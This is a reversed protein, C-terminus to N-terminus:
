NVTLSASAPALNAGANGTSVAGAAFTSTYTGISSSAVPVTVTCSGGAPIVGDKFSVTATGNVAVVTGGCTTAPASTATMNVLGAPHIDDPTFRVGTIETTNTNTFTYTLLSTANQSVSTPSFAKAVAPHVLANLTGSVAAITATSATTVNGTSNDHAGLTATTVNVTVTCSGKAPVTAGALAVSAGGNSATVTGSACTTSAGAASTNVLGAPYSDTFVAGTMATTTPNALTITLVSADNTGISCPTFVKTSCVNGSAQLSTQCAVGEVCTRIEALTFSSPSTGDSMTIPRIEVRNFHACVDLSYSAVKGNSICSQKIVTSKLTTTAGAVEFFRLEVREHLSASDDFKDLTLAFQRADEDFDIRLGEGAGLLGDGGSVGGIAGSGGGGSLYAVNQNGGSDFATVTANNFAITQRGTDAPPNNVGLAAGVTAKDFVVASLITDPWPRAALNARKALDEIGRYLLLDDFHTNVTAGVDPGSFAQITFPGVDRTNDREAGNPPMNLRVGSATYGGLGTIGHSILVYAAGNNLGANHPVGMDTVDLGKGALFQAPTTTRDATNTTNPVPNCLGGPAVGGPFAEHTDCNAMSAGGPQTLGTGGTFVRYSIKRGWADFSDDRRMGITKWPLAGEGFLCQAVGNTVEVGTDATPDAPCPLRYSASAYGELAAAATALKATGQEREDSGTTTRTMSSVALILLAVLALIVAILAGGAGQQHRM